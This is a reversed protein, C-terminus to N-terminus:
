QAFPAEMRSPVARPSRPPPSPATPRRRDGRWTSAQRQRAAALRAFVLPPSVLVSSSGPLSIQCAPPLPAPFTPCNQRTATNTSDAAIEVPSSRGDSRTEAAPASRRARPQGRTAGRRAAAERSQIKDVHPTKKQHPAKWDWPNSAERAPTEGGTAAQARSPDPETRRGQGCSAPAAKVKPFSEAAPFNIAPTFADFIFCKYCGNFLALRSCVFKNRGRVSNQTLGKIELRPKHDDKNFHQAGHSASM